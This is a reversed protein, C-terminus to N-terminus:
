FIVVNIKNEKFYNILDEVEKDELDLFSIADQIEGQEIENGDAKAKKLLRKKISDLSEIAEEDDTDESKAVKKEKVVKKVAKSEAKKAVKPSKKAKTEKEKAM